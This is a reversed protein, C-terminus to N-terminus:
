NLRFSQFPKSVVDVEGGGDDSDSDKCVTVHISTSQGVELTVSAKELIREFTNQPKERPVMGIFAGFLLGLCFMFLAVVATVLDM